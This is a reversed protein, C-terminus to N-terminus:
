LIGFRYKLYWVLGVLADTGSTEGHAAAREVAERMQGAGRSAAIGRVAELLYYPFHGQLSQWLLTRGGPSTRQLRAEIGPKEIGCQRIWKGEDAGVLIREGLLAGALFDDGSPTFGPGLGVLEALPSLVPLSKRLGKRASISRLVRKARTLHPNQASEATFIGLLGGEKGRAILAQELLKIRDPTVAEVKEVGFEGRWQEARSWDIIAEEVTLCQEELNATAGEALRYGCGALLGSEAPFLAPVQISLSSMKELSAVLSVLLGEETIINVAKEYLSAVTARHSIKPVFFGIREAPFRVTKM